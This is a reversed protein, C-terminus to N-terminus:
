QTGSTQPLRTLTAAWRARRRVAPQDAGRCWGGVRERVVLAVVAAAHEALVALLVSTAAIGTTGALLAHHPRGDAIRGGISLGVFAGIGFLTLIAPV